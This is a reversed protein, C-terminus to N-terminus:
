TIAWVIYANTIHEPAAGFSDLARPNRQFGGKGDKRSMLYQRTREVMEPNVDHVKAMDRFELLGYATLAEHAPAAGGFWEYGERQNKQTNLCEYAILRQYGRDLLDRARKELEPRTQDSEKLYNLILLNPYNSTSTQEFCGCPERLMAELGKQLDALTSPYVQVQCKLTGGVWSEPLTVDCQAVKELVDSHSGIIPFGEPVVKITREVSDPPFPESTAAFLLKAEGEVLSPQLRYLKRLRQEAAITVRDDPNGSLLNLGTPTLWVRMTREDSTDNAIALPVDIKDNATVEIPLKPEVTFPKRSSILTTASGLRGDLTHGAALVQFSTVSDSLDFSVQAKGDPLVLVSHWYITEAFDSRVAAEGQSHHHAYERVVFPEPPQMADEALLGAMDAHGMIRRFGRDAAKDARPVRKRLGGDRAEPKREREQLPKEPALQKLKKVENRAFGKGLGAGADFKEKGREAMKAQPVVMRKQEQPAANGKPMPPDGGDAERDAGDKKMDKGPGGRAAAAEQEEAGARKGGVVVVRTKTESSLNMVVTALLVVGCLAVSGLGIGYYARAREAGRVVALVLSIVGVLLFGVALGILARFGLQRYHDKIDDFDKASAAYAMSASTIEQKLENQKRFFEEGKQTETFVTQARVQRIKSEEIKPQYEELVKRQEYQGGNIAQMRQGPAMQGISVLLRDADEKQKKRFEDPNQEAFRRWGQTGLLVDLAQAAQPHGGLLVDAHELDEPRRVESTVLFHSPMSRYTKEDALTIISKDVVAMMLIGPAPQGKEDRATATLTVKEGPVYVQKDAQVGIQLQGPPRRYILREAVPVLDHQKDSRGREEFVTVRYVGGIASDPELKIEA